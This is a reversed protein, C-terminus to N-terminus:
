SLTQQIPFLEEVPVLGNAHVRFDNETMTERVALFVIEESQDHKKVLAQKVLFLNVLASAVSGVLM